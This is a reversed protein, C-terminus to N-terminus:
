AREFFVRVVANGLQDIAHDIIHDAGASQIVGLNGESLNLCTLIREYVVEFRDIVSSDFIWFQM